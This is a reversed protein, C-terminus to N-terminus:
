RLSRLFKGPKKHARCLLEDNRVAVPLLGRSRLELYVRLHGGSNPYNVALIAPLM